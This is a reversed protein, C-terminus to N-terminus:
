YFCRLERRRSSNFPSFVSHTQLRQMQQLIASKESPVHQSPRIRFVGQRRKYESCIDCFNEKKTNFIACDQVGRVAVLRANCTGSHLALRSVHPCHEQQARCLLRPKPFDTANDPCIVFVTATPAPCGSVLPDVTSSSPAPGHM